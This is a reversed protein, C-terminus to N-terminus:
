KDNCADMPGLLAREYLVQRSLYTSNRYVHAVIQLYEYNAHELIWDLVYRTSYDGGLCEKIWLDDCYPYRPDNCIAYIRVHDDEEFVPDKFDVM